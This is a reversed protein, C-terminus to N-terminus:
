DTLLRALADAIAMMAAENPHFSGAINELASDYPQVWPDPSGLSHGRSLESAVLLDVDRQAAADAFVRAVGNQLSLLKPLEAATFPTTEPASIGAELVSVYDVLVVRARPAKARVGDVVRILGQTAEAVVAESVEPIGDPFTTGMMDLLPSDPDERLLATCLMSGAFQLDNGGVTVTVVDANAPLDALQPAFESTGMASQQPTDVVNATTAGSVTLDVLQADLCRALHHAYNNSSRMAAVDDYPEIGPGAAFSSGLAVILGYSTM